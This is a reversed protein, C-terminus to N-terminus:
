LSYNKGDSLIDLGDGYKISAHHYHREEDFLYAFKEVVEQPEESDRYEKQFRLSEAMNIVHSAIALTTRALDSIDEDENILNAIKDIDDRDGKIIIETRTYSYQMEVPPDKPIDNRVFLLDLMYDLRESLEKLSAQNPLMLPENSLKTGTIQVQKVSIQTNEQRMLEALQTHFSETLAGSKSCCEKKQVSPMMNDQVIKAFNM